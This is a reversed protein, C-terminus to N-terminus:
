GALSFLAGPAYGNAFSRISFGAPMLRSHFAARDAFDDPDPTSIPMSRVHGADILDIPALELERALVNLFSEDAHSEDDGSFSRHGRLPWSGRQVAPTAAIQRLTTYGGSHNEGVWEAPNSM